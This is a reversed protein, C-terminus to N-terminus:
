SVELGRLKAAEVFAAEDDTHIIIRGSDVAVIRDVRSPLYADIFETGADTLGEAHAVMLEGDRTMQIDPM